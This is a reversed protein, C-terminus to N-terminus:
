YDSKEEAEQLKHFIAYCEGVDRVVEIAPRSRDSSIEIAAVLM